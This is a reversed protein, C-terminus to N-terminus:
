GFPAAPVNALRCSERDGNAQSFLRYLERKLYRLNVDKPKNLDISLSIM